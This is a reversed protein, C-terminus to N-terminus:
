RLDLFHESREERVQRIVEDAPPLPREGRRAAIRARIRAARALSEQEGRQGTALKLREYEALSLVVAVPQGGRKVIVSEHNEVVRQVLRGFHSRAETTSMVREM